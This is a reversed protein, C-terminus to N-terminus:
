VTRGNQAKVVVRFTQRYGEVTISKPPGPALNTQQIAKVFADKSGPGVWLPGETNNPDTALFFVCNLREGRANREDPVEQTALEAVERVIRKYLHDSPTDASVQALVEAEGSLWTDSRERLGQAVLFYVISFAGATGLGFALTTWISIRWAATTTRLNRPM